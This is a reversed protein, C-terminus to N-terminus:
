ARAPRAPPSRQPQRADLSSSGDIGRSRRLARRRVSRGRHRRRATPIECDSSCAPFARSSASREVRRGRRRPRTRMATRSSTRSGARQERAPPQTCRGRSAGATSRRRPPALEGHPSFRARISSSTWSTGSSIRWREVRRASTRREGPSSREPRVAVTAPARVAARRRLRCRRIAFAGLCRRQFAFKTGRPARRSPRKRLATRSHWDSYRSGTSGRRGPHTPSRCHDGTRSRSSGPVLDSEVRSRKRGKSPARRRGRARRSPPRRRRVVPAARHCRSATQRRWVPRKLVEQPSGLRREDWDQLDM